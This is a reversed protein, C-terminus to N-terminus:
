RAAAPRPGHRDRRPRRPDRPRRSGVALLPSGARASRRPRAAAPASRRRRAALRPVVAVLPLLYPAASPICRTPCPRSPRTPRRRPPPSRRARAAACREASPRRPRPGGPAGRWRRRGRARRRGPGLLVGLSLYFRVTEPRVLLVALFGAAGVRSRPSRWSGGGAARPSCGALALLAASRPATPSRTARWRPSAARRGRRTSACSSTGAAQSVFDARTSTRSCRPRALGVAAAPLRRLRRAPDRAAPALVVAADRWARGAGPAAAGAVRVLLWATSPPTAARARARTAHAGRARVRVGAPSSGAAARRPRGAHSALALM